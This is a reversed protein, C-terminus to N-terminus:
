KLQAIRCLFNFSPFSKKLCLMNIAKREKQSVEMIRGANPHGRDCTRTTRTYSKENATDKGTDARYCNISFNIHKPEIAATM